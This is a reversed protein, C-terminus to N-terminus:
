TFSSFRRRITSIHDDPSNPGYEIARLFSLFLPSHQQSLPSGPMSSCNSTVITAGRYGTSPLQEESDSSCFSIFNTSPLGSSMSPSSISSKRYPPPTSSPLELILSKDSSLVSLDVMIVPQTINKRRTAICRSKPFSSWKAQTMKFSENLREPFSKRRSDRYVIPNNSYSIPPSLPGIYM